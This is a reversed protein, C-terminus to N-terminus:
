KGLAKLQEAPYKAVCEKLDGISGAKEVCDKKQTLFDMKVADNQFEDMTMTIKNILMTQEMKFDGAAFVPSAIFACVLVAFIVKKM